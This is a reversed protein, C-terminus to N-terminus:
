KREITRTFSFLGTGPIVITEMMEVINESTIPSPKLVLEVHILNMTIIPQLFTDEQDYEEV